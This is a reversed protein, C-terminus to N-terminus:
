YSSDKYTILAYLCIKAVCYIIIYFTGDPKSSRQNSYFELNMKATPDDQKGPYGDRYRKADDAANVNGM